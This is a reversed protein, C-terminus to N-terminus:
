SHAFREQVGETSFHRTMGWQRDGTIDVVANIAERQFDPKADFKIKM